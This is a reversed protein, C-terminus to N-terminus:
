CTGFSPPGTKRCAHETIPRSRLVNRDAERVARDVQSPGFGPEAGCARLHAGIICTRRNRAKMFMSPAAFVLSRPQLQVPTCSGEPLRRQCLDVKVHTNYTEGTCIIGDYSWVLVGEPNFAKDVEEELVEPDAQKIRNRTRSLVADSRTDLTVRALRGVPIPGPSLDVLVGPDRAM